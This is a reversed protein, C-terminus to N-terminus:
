AAAERQEEREADGVAALAPARDREGNGDQDDLQRYAPERERQDLRQRRLQADEARGFEQAGCEQEGHEAHQDHQQKPALRIVPIGRYAWSILRSAATSKSSANAISACRRTSVNISRKAACPQASASEVPM